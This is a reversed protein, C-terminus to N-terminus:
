GLIPLIGPLVGILDAGELHHKEKTRVGTECVVTSCTECDQPNLKDYCILLFSM